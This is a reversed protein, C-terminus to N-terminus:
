QNKFHYQYQKIINGDLDRVISLRNLGDYEYFVTHSNADSLSTVGILPSHTYTTMQTGAPYLRVDDVGVLRGYANIAVSGTPSALSGQTVRLLYHLLHYGQPNTYDDTQSLVQSGNDTRVSVNSAGGQAWFTLEYDGPALSARNIDTISPGGSLIYYGTGSVGGSTQLGYPQGASTTQGLSPDYDWGYPGASQFTGNNYSPGDSEFSTFAIQDPRANTVKAVLLSKAYDWIYAAKRAGIATLGTLNGKADYTDFTLTPILRADIILPSNSTTSYHLSSFTSPDIPQSFVSKYNQFPMICANGAGGWQFTHAEAEVLQSKIGGGAQAEFTTRRVEVPYGVINKDTMALLASATPETPSNVGAPYIINFPYLYNTYISKGKSDTTMESAVLRSNFDPALLGYSLSKSTTIPNSGNTDYTIEDVQTPLYAYTYHRFSVGNYVSSASGDCVNFYSARVVRAYENGKNLATYQITKQKVLADSRTYLSEQLLNGREHERSSYPQYPTQSLQLTAAPMEDVNGTDFNSFRSTTYSGDSLRETVVSYGIHSGQGITCAPLTSQASFLTETYNVTGDNSARVTYTPNSYQIQGGLIGSSLQSPGTSASYQQDYYYIKGINPGDPSGSTTSSIIKQIRLGGARVNTSLSAPYQSRDIGVQKAYLHQGYNFTTYGGTPYQIKTLVGSLYVTSDASPQRAQYYNAFSTAADPQPLDRFLSSTANYFGWHDTKFNLYPLSFINNNNYTFVYPPKSPASNNQSMETVQTLVLRQSSNDTYALNFRQTLQGNCYSQIDTLKRWRLNAIAGTSTTSSNYLTYPRDAPNNIDGELFPLFVRNNSNIKKYEGSYTNLPYALEATYASTFTLANNSWTITSLYVPRILQGQFSPSGGVSGDCPPQPDFPHFSSTSSTNINAMTYTFYMQNIFIRGTETVYTFNIQRGDSSTIKTLHWSTAQWPVGGNQQFFPLEYEIATTVGGFQYQTGEETTIVFGSLTQPYGVGYQVKDFTTGLPAAFPVDLLPSAPNLLSVRVPKNCQVRWKGTSSGNGTTSWYFKGSYEGFNFAFEDPETDFRFGKYNGSQGGEDILGLQASTQEWNSSNIYQDTFNYLYGLNTCNATHGNGPWTTEDPAGQVTRTIIGGANLNWGVGVWGPHMDPRFGSAHYSLSIPVNLRGEQVEYLPISINPVGTFQSVPVQGYLGLSSANPSPVSRPETALQDGSTIAFQACVSLPLLYGCLAAVGRLFQTFSQTMRM